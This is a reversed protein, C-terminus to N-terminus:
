KYCPVLKKSFQYKLINEQNDHPMNEKWIPEAISVNNFEIFKIKTYKDLKLTKLYSCNDSIPIYEISVLLKTTEEENGVKHIWKSYQVIYSYSIILIIINVTIDFLKKRYNKYDIIVSILYAANTIILIFGLIYPSIIIPMVLSKFDNFYLSSSFTYLEITENLSINSTIIPYILYIILGSLPITYSILWKFKKYYFIVKHSSRLLWIFYALNIIYTLLFLVPPNTIDFFNTKDINNKVYLSLGINLLLIIIMIIAKEIKKYDFILAAIICIIFILSIIFEFLM